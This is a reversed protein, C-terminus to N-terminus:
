AAGDQAARETESVVDRRVANLERRIATAKEALNMGDEIKEASREPLGDLAVKLRALFGSWARRVEQADVLEGAKQAAAMEALDADARMKRDKDSLDDGGRRSGSMRKMYWPLVEAWVYFCGRGEGHRPLGEDHWRQITRDTVAFLACLDAQKLEKLADKLKM